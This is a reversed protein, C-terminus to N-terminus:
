VTVDCIIKFTFHMSGHVGLKERQKRSFLGSLFIHLSPVQLCFVHGCGACSESTKDMTKSNETVDTDFNCCYSGQWNGAM